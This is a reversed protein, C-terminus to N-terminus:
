FIKGIGFFLAWVIFAILGIVLITPLVFSIIAAILIAFFDGKEMPTEELNKKALNAKEETVKIRNLIKQKKMTIVHWM